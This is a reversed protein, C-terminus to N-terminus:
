TEGRIRVSPGVCVHQLGSDVAHVQCTTRRALPDDIEPVVRGLCYGRKVFRGEGMNVFPYLGRPVVVVAFLQPAVPPPVVTRSLRQELSDGGHRTVNRGRAYGFMPQEDPQIRADTRVPLQDDNDAVVVRREADQVAPKVLRPRQPEPRPEALAVIRAVRRGGGELGEGERVAERGVDGGGVVDVVRAGDGDGVRGSPQHFKAVAPEVRGFPHFPHVLRNRATGLTWDRAVFSRGPFEPLAHQGVEVVSPRLPDGISM